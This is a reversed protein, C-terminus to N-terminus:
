SGFDATFTAGDGATGFPTGPARGIGVVRFTADLLIHRHPSSRLWAGVISAPSASGPQWALNEGITWRRKGHMWGTEAVRDKPSRGSRSTHAFYHHVVMDRSHRRAARGLRRDLRLGPVGHDARVHNILCLTRVSVPRAPKGPPCAADQASAAPAGSWMAGATLLLPLIM